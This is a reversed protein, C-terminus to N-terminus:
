AFAHNRRASRGSIEGLAQSIITATAQHEVVEYHDSEVEVLRIDRRHRMSDHTVVGDNALPIFLSHGKLSVINTWPRRISFGNGERIPASAPHIDQLLQNFPMIHRLMEAAESGGYPTSMTVAGLVRDDLENALHLAYIGGLSHAIFFIEGIDELQDLMAECNRYFGNASDYELVIDDYRHLQGRLYDFCDPSAGNGHIYVINM